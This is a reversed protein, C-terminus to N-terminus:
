RFLGYVKRRVKPLYRVSFYKFYNVRKGSKRFSLIIERFGALIGALKGSTGDSKMCVSVFDTIKVRTLPHEMFRFMLDFDAAVKYSTDFTGLNHFLKKLAFFGPHPVHYGSVYDGLTFPKPMWSSLIGKKDFYQIGCCVIDFDDEKFFTVVKELVFPTAFFDDSNLFFIVDGDSLMVGKNMADYIGDDPESYVRVRPDSLSYVIERTRDTSMGDVLIIEFNCYTQKLCSVICREITDESNFAVTVITFKM